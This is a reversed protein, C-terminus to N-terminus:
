WPGLHATTQEERRQREHDGQTAHTGSGGPRPGALPGGRPEPGRGRGRHRGRGARRRGDREAAGRRRGLRGEREVGDRSAVRQDAIALRNLVLPRLMAYQFRTVYGDSSGSEGFYWGSRSSTPQTRRSSGPWSTSGSASGVSVGRGVGFGVGPGGLAAGVADGGPDGATLAPARGHGAALFQRTRPERPDEFLVEPPGEELIRGADLFCVRDAIERAFGMEHTAIVMTMGSAALERIVSLVEGVLEPDLASTIEDLLLLDPQMALARVIAVRQQQGGSLRDPM